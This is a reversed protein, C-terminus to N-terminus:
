RKRRRPEDDSLRDELVSIKTELSHIREDTHRDREIANIRERLEHLEARIETLAYTHNERAEDLAQFRAAGVAVATGITIWACAAKADVKFEAAM